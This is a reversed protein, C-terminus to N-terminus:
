DNNFGITYRLTLWNKGYRRFLAPLFEHQVVQETKELTIM